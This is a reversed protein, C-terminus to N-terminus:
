IFIKELYLPQHSKTDYFSVSYISEIGKPPTTVVSGIKKLQTVKVSETKIVIPFIVRQNRGDLPM